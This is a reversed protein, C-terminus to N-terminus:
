LVGPAPQGAGFRDGGHHGRGRRIAEDAVEAFGEVAASWHLQLARTRAAQGLQERRRQDIALSAWTSAFQGETTVLMGTQGHMASDRVGPVDFAVAPTGRDGSRRGRDGLGRDAGSAPVAVGLADVPAKGSGVGPRHVCCRARGDGGAETAGARGRRDGSEGAWWTGCGTGCGCCCTSASTTPSDASRSSCRNRRGRPRRTRCRSVTASRGSGTRASGSGSLWEATSPPVTLFLNERHAWPMVVREINRGVTSFPPRFRISWLETHMHNVLCLVPRRCWLPSLFPMGNCVEVILDYNRFHRLYALPARLFQSYTGGNRMVRYPREAVTGGCLLTVQHGRALVGSALRDVLVESGGAQRNALDRWAVFLVSKPEVGAGIPEPLGYDPMAADRGALWAPRALCLAQTM